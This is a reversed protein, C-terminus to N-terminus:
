GPQDVDVYRPRAVPALHVPAALAALEAGHELHRGREGPRCEGPAQDHPRAIRGDGADSRQGRRHDRQPDPAHPAPFGRGRSGERAPPVEVELRGLKVMGELPRLEDIVGHIRGAELLPAAAADALALGGADVTGSVRLSLKPRQEFAINLERSLLASRLAVPLGRPVSGLGRSIDLQKLSLSPTGECRESFPTAVAASEFRSGDLTFALLPQVRVQRQSPLSSIFPVALELARLPHTAQVPADTFHASGHTLVTDHV